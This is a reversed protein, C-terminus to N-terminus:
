KDEDDDDSVVSVVPKAAASSASGTAPSSVKKKLRGNSSASTTTKSKQYKTKAEITANSNNATGKMWKPTFDHTSDYSRVEGRRKCFDAWVAAGSANQSGGQKKISCDYTAHGKRGCHFCSLNSKDINAAKQQPTYKTKYESAQFNTVNMANVVLRESETPAKITSRYIAKIATEALQFVGDVGKCQKYSVGIYTLLMPNLSNVFMQKITAETVTPDCIKLSNATNTFSEYHLKLERQSIRGEPIKIDRLESRFTETHTSNMYQERYAMLISSLLRKEPVKRLTFTLIMSTFWALAEAVCKSKFIVICDSVVFKYQQVAMCYAQYWTPAKTADGDFSSLLSITETRAKLIQTVTMDRRDRLLTMMVRTAEDFTSLIEPGLVSDFGDSSSDSDPKTTILAKTKRDRTDDNFQMCDDCLDRYTYSYFQNYCQRCSLYKDASISSSYANSDSTTSNVDELDPMEYPNPHNFKSRYKVYDPQDSEDEDTDEKPEVQKSSAGQEYRHAAQHLKMQYIYSQTLERYDDFEDSAVENIPPDVRLIMPLGELTKSDPPIDNSKNNSLKTKADRSDRCWEPFELKHADVPRIKEYGPVGADHLARKYWQIWLSPFLRTDGKFIFLSRIYEMMRGYENLLTYREKYYKSKYKDIPYVEERLLLWPVMASDPEPEFITAERKDKRADKLRVLDDEDLKVKHKMKYIIKDIREQKEVLTEEKKLSPATPKRSNINSMKQMNEMMQRMEEMYLKMVVLEDKQQKVVDAYVEREEELRHVRLEEYSMDSTSKKMSASKIKMEAETQDASSASSSESGRTNVVVATSPEFDQDSNDDDNEQAVPSPTEVEKKKDRSRGRSRSRTTSM